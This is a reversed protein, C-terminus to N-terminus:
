CKPRRLQQTAAVKLAAPEDRQAVVFIRRFEFPTGYSKAPYAKNLEEGYEQLFEASQAASLQALVPRLATGKVWDLVANEQAPLLHLYTTEWANVRYGLPALVATYEAPGYASLAAKDRQQGSLLLKWHPRASVEALLTHSPADFNGPVQFAFTGGPAVWGALRPILEAHNDVWQLAANSLLLDVPREPQWTRLDARVFGLHSSVFQEAQELMEPSSDVGTVQAKPWRRSLAASLHGTGCGLDAIQQPDGQVQALLDFFPRDREIQFQLYQQPNWM